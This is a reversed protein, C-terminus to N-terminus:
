NGKAKKLEGELWDKVADFSAPDKARFLAAESSDEPPMDKDRGLRKLLRTLVATRQKRETSKSWSERATKDFPDFALMPIPSFGTPKGAPRIDHCRLCATTPVVEVEKEEKTRDVRPSCAHKGREGVNWFPHDAAVTAVLGEVFRDKFEDRDPFAAGNMVDAFSPGSFVSKALSAPTVEPRNITKAASRASELMFARDGETLGLTRALTVISLHDGPNNSANIPPTLFAKPNSPLHQTPMNPNGAERETDYREVGSVTGGWTIRRGRVTGISGAPSYDALFSSPTAKQIAVADAVFSLLNPHSFEKRLRSEIKDLPDPDVLEVLMLTLANRGTATKTLAHFIERNQLLNAGARVSVEVEPAGSSFLSMGDTVTQETPGQSWGFYGFSPKTGNQFLELSAARVVDNHISNSWPGVGLIPGRNKHCSFCRTGDLMKLQPMGDPYEIVGFDFKLRRTNWSIFEVTKIHPDIQPFHNGGGMNAALFLRGELNRQNAPSIPIPMSVIQPKGAIGGGWGGSPTFPIVERTSPSLQMAMVVRPNLMGSELAVASFPFSLQPFIGLKQLAAQLETGTAPIKGGNAEIVANIASHAYPSEKAQVPPSAPAEAPPSGHVAPAPVAAFALAIAAFVSLSTAPANM